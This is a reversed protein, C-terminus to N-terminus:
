PYRQLKVKHRKKAPIVPYNFKKQVTMEALGSNVKILPILKEPYRILDPM